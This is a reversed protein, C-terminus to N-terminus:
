RGTTFLFGTHYILTSAQGQQFPEMHECLCGPAISRATNNTDTLTLM